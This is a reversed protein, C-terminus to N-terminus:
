SLHQTRQGKRKKWQRKKAKKEAVIEPPDPPVFGDTIRYFTVTSDSDCIALTVTKTMLDPEELELEDQPRPVHTLFDRLRQPSLDTQKGLPVLVQMDDAQTPRGYLTVLQLAPCPLVDLESWQKAESLYLYVLMAVQVQEQNNFGYALMEKYKPHELLSTLEDARTKNEESSAMKCRKPSVM